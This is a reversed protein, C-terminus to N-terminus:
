FVFYISLQWQEEEARGQQQTRKGVLCLLPQIFTKHSLPDKAEECIHSDIAQIEHKPNEIMVLNEM